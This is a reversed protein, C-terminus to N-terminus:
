PTSKPNALSEIGKSKRHQNDMCNVKQNSNIGANSRPDLQRTAEGDLDGV